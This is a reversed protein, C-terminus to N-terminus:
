EFGALYHLYSAAELFHQTNYIVGIVGRDEEDEYCGYEKLVPLTDAYLGIVAEDEGIVQSDSLKELEEETFVDRLDMWTDSKDYKEFDSELMGCVDLKESGIDAIFKSLSSMTYSGSDTGELMLNTQFSVQYKQTDLGAYEMFDEQMQESSIETHCDILMVELATEKETLKTVLFYGILLVVIVLAFFPLKYYMWFYELENKLDKKNSKVKAM